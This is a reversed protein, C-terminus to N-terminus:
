GHLNGVICSGLVLLCSSLPYYNLIRFNIPRHSYSLKAHIITVVGEAIMFSDFAGMFYVKVAKILIQVTSCRWTQNRM